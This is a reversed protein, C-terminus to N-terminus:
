QEYLGYIHDLSGVRKIFNVPLKKLLGDKPNFVMGHIRPYVEEELRALQFTTSVESGKDSLQAIVQGTDAVKVVGACLRYPLSSYCRGVSVRPKSCQTGKEYLEKVLKEKVEMRKRQVPGTFCMVVLRTIEDCLGASRSV